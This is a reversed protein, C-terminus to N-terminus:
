MQRVTLKVKMTVEILPNDNLGDWTENGEEVFWSFQINKWNGAPWPSEPHQFIKTQLHKSPRRDNRVRTASEEHKETYMGNM